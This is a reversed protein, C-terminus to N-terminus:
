VQFQYTWPLRTVERGSKPCRHYRETSMCAKAIM